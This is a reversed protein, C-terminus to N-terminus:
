AKSSGRRTRRKRSGSGEPTYSGSGFQYILLAFFTRIRVTHYILLGGTFAVFQYILECAAQQSSFKRLCFRDTKGAGEPLSGKAHHSPKWSFRFGAQGPTGRGDDGAAIGGEGLPRRKPPSPLTEPMACLRGRPPAPSRLSVSPTVSGCIVCFAAAGPVACRSTYM